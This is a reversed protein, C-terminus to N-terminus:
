RGARMKTAMARRAVEKKWVRANQFEVSVKLLKATAGVAAACVGIVLVPNEEFERALKRGGRKVSEKWNNIHRTENM